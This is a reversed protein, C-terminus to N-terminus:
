RVIEWSTPQGVRAGPVSRVRGKKALRTLRVYATNPKIALEAAVQETTLASRAKGLIKLTHGDAESAPTISM